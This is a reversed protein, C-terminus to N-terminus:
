SVEGFCEQIATKLIIEILEKNIPFPLSKPNYNRFFFNFNCFFTM